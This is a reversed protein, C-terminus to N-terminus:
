CLRETSTLMSNLYGVGTVTMIMILVSIILVYPVNGVINYVETMFKDFRKSFGWIAGIVVGILMNIAACVLALSISISSGYWIYDFTSQGSDGSGLIWHISFGFKDIAQSPSLHQASTDMINIFPTTKPDYGIALPYIYAFVIVFLLLAIFVINIKNKFFVRFVSKWYSYRPATIKESDLENNDVHSFLEEDTMNFEQLDILKEEM